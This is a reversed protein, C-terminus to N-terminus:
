RRAARALQRKDARRWRRSACLAHRWGAGLIRRDRQLHRCGGGPGTGGGAWCIVRGDVARYAAPQTPIVMPGGNTFSNARSYVGSKVSVQFPVGGANGLQTAVFISKVAAGWSTGPNGDNGTVIDVFYTPGALAAAAYAEPKFDTLHRNGRRRLALPYDDFPFDFGAPPTTRRGAAMGAMLGLGPMRMLDV